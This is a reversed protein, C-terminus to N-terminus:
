ASGIAKNELATPINPSANAGDNAVMRSQTTKIPSPEAIKWGSPERTALMAAPGLRPSAWDM